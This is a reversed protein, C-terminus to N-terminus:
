NNTDLAKNTDITICADTGKTIAQLTITKIGHFIQRRPNPHKHRLKTLKHWQHFFSTGEGAATITEKWVRYTAIYIIERGSTGTIKLVLVM